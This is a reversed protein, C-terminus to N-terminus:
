YNFGEKALTGEVGSLLAKDVEFSERIIRKAISETRLDDCYGQSEIDLRGM